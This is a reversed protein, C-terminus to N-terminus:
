TKGPQTFEVLLLKVVSLEFLLMSNSITIVVNIRM